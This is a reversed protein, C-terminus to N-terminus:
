TIQTLLFSLFATKQSQHQSAAVKDERDDETLAAAGVGIDPEMHLVDVAQVYALGVVHRTGNHVVEERLDIHCDVLLIPFAEEDTSLHYAARVDEEVLDAPVEVRVAPTTDVVQVVCNIVRDNLYCSSHNDHLVQVACFKELVVRCLLPNAISARDSEPVEEESRHGVGPEKTTDHCHSHVEDQQTAPHVNSMEQENALRHEVM